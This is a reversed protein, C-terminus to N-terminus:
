SFSYSAVCVVIVVDFILCPKEELSGTKKKKTWGNGHGCEVWHTHGDELCMTVLSNLQPVDMSGDNLGLSPWLLQNFCLSTTATYSTKKITETTLMGMEPQNDLKRDLIQHANMCNASQVKAIASTSLLAM